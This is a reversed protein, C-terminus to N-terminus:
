YLSAWIYAGVADQELSILHGVLGCICVRSTILPLLSVSISLFYTLYDFRLINKHCFFTMEWM